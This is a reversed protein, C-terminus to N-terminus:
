LRDARDRERQHASRAFWILMAAIIALLGYQAFVTIDVTGPDAPAALVYPM